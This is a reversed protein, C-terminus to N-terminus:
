KVESCYAVNFVNHLKLFPAVYLIFLRYWDEATGDNTLMFLINNIPTDCKSRFTFLLNTFYRNIIMRQKIVPEGVVAAIAPDNKFLNSAAPCVERDLHVTVMTYLDIENVTPQNM